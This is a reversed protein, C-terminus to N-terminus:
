IDLGITELCVRAAPVAARNTHKIRNVREQELAAVMRGDELVVAAADHAFDYALDYDLRWTSDFGGSLGLVIMATSEREGATQLPRLDAQRDAAPQLPAARVAPQPCRSRSLGPGCAGM